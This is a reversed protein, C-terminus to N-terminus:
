GGKVPPALIVMEADPDFETIKKGKSGDKKVTYAIYNKKDILKDFQEKAAKIEAENNSDWIVKLDGADADLVRLEGM